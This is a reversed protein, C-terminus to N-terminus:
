HSPRSRARWLKLLNNTTCLLRWEADCAPLGRRIFRHARRPGKIHGFIPEAIQARRAFLSRGRKTSLKREMRRRRPSPPVPVSRRGGTEQTGVLLDPGEALHTLERENWYGADAVLVGIKQGGAKLVESQAREVMPRLQRRDNAEQTVAAAVVIHDETVVAQANYGQIFGRTGKMVRSDPDTTNAKATTQSRPQKLVPKRGRLPRGREAETAARRSLHQEYASRRQQEEQDLRDKCARLRVLRSTRDKLDAPLEDGRGPGFREDEEADVRAAESLIAQVEDEIQARTRNAGISASAEMKTGDLAVLGVRLLGAAWCLKLVETFLLVLAREHQQRFRAITTHDPIHNACIVRCALDERCRREIRRSSREGTCYAYLLLAVMMKPEFAAGGWGDERYRAYFSRLDMQDVADLVFWALHDAPLWDKLSPPLLYTQDRDVTLFNQAV